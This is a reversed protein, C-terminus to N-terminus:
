QSDRYNKLYKAIGGITESRTMKLAEEALAQHTESLISSDNVEDIMGKLMKAKHAIEVAKGANAMDEETTVKTPNYHRRIAADIDQRSPANGEEDRYEKFLENLKEVEGFDKEMREQTDGLGLENYEHELRGYNISNIAKEYPKVLQGVMNIVPNAHTVAKPDDYHRVSGFMAGYAHAEADDPSGNRITELARHVRQRDSERANLKAVANYAGQLGGLGAMAGVGMQVSKDAAALRLGRLLAAPKASLPLFGSRVIMAVPMGAAAGTLAGWAAKAALAKIKQKTDMPRAEVEHASAYEKVVAARDKMDLTTFNRNELIDSLPVGSDRALRVGRAVNTISVTM